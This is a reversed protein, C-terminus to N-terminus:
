HGNEKRVCPDPKEIDQRNFQLPDGPDICSKKNPVHKGRQQGKVQQAGDQRDYCNEVKDQKEPRVKGLPESITLEAKLMLVGLLGNIKFFGGAFGILLLTIDVFAGNTPFGIGFIRIHLKAVTGLAIPIVAVTHFMDVVVNM